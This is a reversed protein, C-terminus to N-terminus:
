SSGGGGDTARATLGRSRARVLTAARMGSAAASELLPVGPAAYAGCFWIRRDSQAHLAEILQLGHQSAADVVPRQVRVRHIVRQPRPEIIPNWTQFLDGPLTDHVTNMWITAMPAQHRADVIFNVPGWVSRHPPALREDSHMVVDSSQYSFSSLAQREAVSCELMALAHNAQSAIVVQDFRLDAGGANVRVSDDAPVVTDVAVGLRIQQVGATLRTVVDSIGHRARCVPMSFLGAAFYGLVVAAPYHRVSDLTCTCIGAMLPVLFGESFAQSYGRWQLYDALTRHDAAGSSLETRVCRFFRLADWVLPLTNRAWSRHIRLMPLAHRGIRMNRYSLYTQGSETFSGSYELPELEVGAERYLRCLSPYYAEYVVRMPVDIRQGGVDVGLADMGLRPQREFLTVDHDAKLKWAAALGAMGSGIVAVKQRVLTM